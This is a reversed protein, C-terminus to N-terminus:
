KTVAPLRERKTVSNGAADRVRMELTHDGEPVADSVFQIDEWRSDFIGDAAVAARWEGNDIRFEASVIPSVDDLAMAKGTVRKQEDLRFSDASFLLLPPNNDVAFTKSIAEASLADAPSGITDKVIVKLRYIGDAQKRTDFSYSTSKPDKLSLSEWKAGNDKSLYLEYSLQDKDPDEAAWQISQEGRWYEGGKPRKITVM